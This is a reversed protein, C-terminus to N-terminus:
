FLPPQKPDPLLDRRGEIDLLMKKYRLGGTYGGLSGDTRVVRHCPVIIAVPNRGLANGVARSAKPRGISHAIDAYSAIEGFGLRRAAGLVSQQFDTLRSLDIPLEFGHRRREFYELLQTETEQLEDCDCVVPGERYRQELGLIFDDDSPTQWTLEVLGKPSAAIRMTGFPTDFGRWRIVPGGRCAIASSDLTRYEAARERCGGCSVLHETLAQGASGTLDGLVWAVLDEDQYTHCHSDIV